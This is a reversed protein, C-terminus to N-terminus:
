YIMGFLAPFKSVPQPVILKGFFNSRSYSTQSIITTGKKPANAFNRFAVTLKTTDTQGEARGCPVGGAGVRRIKM